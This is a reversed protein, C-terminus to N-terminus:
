SHSDTELFIVELNLVSEWNNGRYRLSIYQYIKDM